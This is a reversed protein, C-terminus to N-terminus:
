DDLAMNKTTKIGYIKIQFDLNRIKDFHVAYGSM